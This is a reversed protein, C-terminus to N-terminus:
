SFILIYLLANVHVHNFNFVFAQGGHKRGMPGLQLRQAILIADLADPLAIGGEPCPMRRHQERHSARQAAVGIRQVAHAIGHGLVAKGAAHVPLHLLLRRVAHREQQRLRM